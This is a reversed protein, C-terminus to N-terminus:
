LLKHYPLIFDQKVRDYKLKYDKTSGASVNNKNLPTQFFSNIKEGIYGYRLMKLWLCWDLLRVYKDDTVFGGIEELINRKIMSNSSIYNQQILLEKDFERDFTISQEKLTYKFPVYVYGINDKSNSLVNYMKNLMGKQMHIDNDIKIIYKVPEYKSEYKKLALETNLPINNNGEYSIWDYSKNYQITNTLSPSICDGKKLPTIVLYKPNIVKKIIKFM